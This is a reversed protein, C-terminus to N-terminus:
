PGIAPQKCAFRFTPLEFFRVIYKGKCPSGASSSTFESPLSDETFKSVPSLSFADTKHSTDTTDTTSVLLTVPVKTAGYTAAHFSGAKTPVFGGEDILTFDTWKLTESNLTKLAKTVDPRHHQSTQLSIFPNLNTLRTGSELSSLFLWYNLSEEHFQNFYFPALEELYHYFFLYIILILTSSLNLERDWRTSFVWLGKRSPGM